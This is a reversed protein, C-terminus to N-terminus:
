THESRVWWGDNLISFFTNRSPWKSLFFKKRQFLLTSDLNLRQQLRFDRNGNFCFTFIKNPFSISFLISAFEPLSFPIFQHTFTNTFHFSFAYFFTRIHIAPMLLGFLLFANVLPDVKFGLFRMQMSKHQSHKKTAAWKWTKIWM